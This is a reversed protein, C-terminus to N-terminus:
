ATKLRFTFYKQLFYNLTVVIITSIIKAITPHIGAFEVLSALIIYDSVLGQLVVLFYKGLQQISQKSENKRDFAFNKSLWYGTPVTILFAILLSVTYSEVHFQILTFGSLPLLFQYLLAFLIINLATNAAGVTLYAYLEFDMVKKFPFYFIELTSYIIKRLM